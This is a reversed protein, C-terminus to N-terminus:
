LPKGLVGKGTVAADAGVPAAKKDAVAELLALRVRYVRDQDDEAPRRPPPRPRRRDTVSAVSCLWEGGLGLMRALERDKDKFEDTRRLHAPVAELEAFLALAEATFSPRRPRDIIRRNTPM